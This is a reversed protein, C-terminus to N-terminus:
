LKPRYITQGEFVFEDSLQMLTESHGVVLYGDDALLQKFKAIIRKKTEHDFYIFVNRCFIVDFPGKMPWADLLNLQKFHVLQRILPSLTFDHEGQRKAYKNAYESPISSLKEDSYIGRKATNLVNTDLDTALIKLDWENTAFPHALTMAISYPEEGTSCAASWVRLRKNPRSLWQQTIKDKLYEFHHGERFFYTLNTTLANIFVPLETEDRQLRQVYDAFSTEGLQRLRRSLRSYVMHKKRAPLVIGTSKYALQRIAEFDASSMPFEKDMDFATDTQQQLQSSLNSSM